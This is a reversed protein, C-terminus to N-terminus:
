SGATSFSPDDTLVFSLGSANPDRMASLGLPVVAADTHVFTLDVNETPSAKPIVWRYHFEDDFDFAFSVDPPTGDAIDYRFHGASIRTWTGVGFVADLSLGTMQRLGASIVLSRATRIKRLVDLFTWGGIDKTTFSFGLKIGNGEEVIGLDEWAAGYADSENPPLTSGFPAMHVTGNIRAVVIEDADIGPM